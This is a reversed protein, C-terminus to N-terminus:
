FLLGLQEAEATSRGSETPLPPCSDRSAESAGPRESETRLSPSLMRATEAELEAALLTQDVPSDADRQDDQHVKAIKAADSVNPCTLFHEGYIPVDRAFAEDVSVRTVYWTWGADDGGWWECGDLRYGPERCAYPKFDARWAGFGDGFGNLELPRPDLDLEDGNAAIVRWVECGCGGVMKGQHDEWEECRRPEPWEPEDM